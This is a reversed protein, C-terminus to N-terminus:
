GARSRNRTGAMVALSVVVLVLSLAIAEDLNDSSQSTSV